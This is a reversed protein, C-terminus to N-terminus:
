KKVVSAVKEVLTQKRMAYMPNKTDFFQKLDKKANQALGDRAEFLEELRKTTGEHGMETAPMVDIETTDGTAEKRMEELEAFKEITNM